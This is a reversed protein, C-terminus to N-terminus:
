AHSLLFSHMKKGIFSNRMKWLPESLTLLKGLVVSCLAGPEPHLARELARCKRWCQTARAKEWGAKSLTEPHSVRVGYAKIRPGSGVWLSVRVQQLCFTSSGWERVLSEPAVAWSAEAAAALTSPVRPTVPADCPPESQSAACLSIDLYM